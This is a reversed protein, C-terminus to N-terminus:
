WNTDIYKKLYEPMEDESSYIMFAQKDKLVVDLKSLLQEIDADEKYLIKKIGDIYLSHIDFNGSIIGCIFGYLSEVCNIEYETINILRIEHNLDYMCRNNDDIYVINGKAEEAETNAMDLLRKSKGSGKKGYILKIM